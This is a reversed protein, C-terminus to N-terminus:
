YQAVRRLSYSVFKAVYRPVTPFLLTSSSSKGHSSDHYVTDSILDRTTVYTSFGIPNAIIRVSSYWSNDFTNM